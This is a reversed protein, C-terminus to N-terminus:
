GVPPDNTLSQSPCRNQSRQSKSMGNRLPNQGDEGNTLAQQVVYVGGKGNRAGTAERFDDEITM